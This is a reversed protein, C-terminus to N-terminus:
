RLANVYPRLRDGMGAVTYSIIPNFEAIEVAKRFTKLHMHPSCSAVAVATLGLEKIKQLIL